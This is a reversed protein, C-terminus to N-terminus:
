KRYGKSQTNVWTLASMVMFTTGLYAPAVTASDWGTKTLLTVTLATVLVFAASLVSVLPFARYDRPGPSLFLFRSPPHEPGDSETLPCGGRNRLTLNDRQTANM